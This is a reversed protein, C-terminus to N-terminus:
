TSIRRIKAQTYIIKEAALLHKLRKKSVTECVNTRPM